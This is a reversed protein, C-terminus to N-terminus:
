FKSYDFEDLEIGNKSPGDSMTSHRDRFAVFSLLLLAAHCTLYTSDKHINDNISDSIPSELRRFGNM